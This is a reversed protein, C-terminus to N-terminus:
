QLNHCKTYWSYYTNQSQRQMVRKQGSDYKNHQAVLLRLDAAEYLSPRKHHFILVIMANIERGMVPM